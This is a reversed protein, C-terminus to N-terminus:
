DTFIYDWGISDNISGGIQWVDISMGDLFSVGSNDLSSRIEYNFLGSSSIISSPKWSTISADDIPNELDDISGNRLSRLRVATNFPTRSLPLPSELDTLNDEFTNNTTFYWQDLIVTNLNGLYVKFSHLGGEGLFVSGIKTWRPINYWGSQNLGLTFKRLNTTDDDFSWYIGDNNIFGFGWLHYVGKSPFFLNYKLYPANAVADDVSDYKEDQLTNKITTGSTKWNNTSSWHIMPQFVWSHKSDQFNSAQFSVTDSKGIIFTRRDSADVSLNISVKHITKLGDFKVIQSAMTGQTYLHRSTYLLEASVSTNIQLSKLFSSVTPTSSDASLRVKVQHYRGKVLLGFDELEEEILSNFQGPGTFGTWLIDGDDQSFLSNNARFSFEVTSNSPIDFESIISSLISENRQTDVISSLFSASVVGEPLLLTDDIIRTSGNSSENIWDEWDTKTNWKKIASM